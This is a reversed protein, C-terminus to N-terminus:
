DERALLPALAWALLAGAVQSLWFGPLDAPRIGAFSDSVARALSVAPNAFSTSATAWYAAAIWLAVLLPLWGPRHRAGLLITLLLGFTAVGESLWQAPGTRVTTASQLLPEGFMAHALLTGLVGGLAQAALYPLAERRPLDRRLAVVLTVAPNFHAGSVPGLTAILVVLVAATALTNALLALGIDDTLTTAMLGSGVVTAALLGTGLGEALLRSALSPFRDM